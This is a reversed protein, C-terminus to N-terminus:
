CIYSFLVLKGLLLGTLVPQKEKQAPFCGSIYPFKLLKKM